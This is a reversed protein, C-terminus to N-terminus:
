CEDPPPREGAADHGIHPAAALEDERVRDWGVLWKAVETERPTFSRWTDASLKGVVTRIEDPTPDAPLSM